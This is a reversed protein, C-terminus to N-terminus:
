RQQMSRLSSEDFSNNNGLYEFSRPRCEVDLFRGSGLAFRASELWTRGVHLYQKQSPRLRADLLLLFLNKACVKRILVVALYMVCVDIQM